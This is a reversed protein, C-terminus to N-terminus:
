DVLALRATCRGNPLAPNAGARQAMDILAARAPEVKVAAEVLRQYDVCTVGADGAGHSNALATAYRDFADLARAGAAESAFHSRLTENAQVLVARKERVFKNYSATLDVGQHRCRLTATMLMTDFDRVLAADAAQDSWCAAHAQACGLTMIAAVAVWQRVGKM